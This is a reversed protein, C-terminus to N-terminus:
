KPDYEVHVHDREAVVDYDGVLNAKIRDVVKVGLDKPYRCDFADNSYHLSGASHNGEFTSTIVLEDGRNEYIGSVKNMARRIQRNLRSIDVGAKILM